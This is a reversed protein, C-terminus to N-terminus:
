PMGRLVDGVLHLLMKKDTGILTHRHEGNGVTLVVTYAKTAPKAVVGDPGESASATRQEAPMEEGPPVIAVGCRDNEIEPTSRRRGTWPNYYWVWDFARNRWEHAPRGDRMPVGDFPNFRTLTMQNPLQM